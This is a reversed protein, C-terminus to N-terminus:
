HLWTVNSMEALRTADPHTHGSLTVHGFEFNASLRPRQPLRAPSPWAVTSSCQAALLLALVPPHHFLLTSPQLAGVDSTRLEVHLPSALPALPAFAPSCVHHGTHETLPTHPLLACTRECACACTRAHAHTQSRPGGHSRDAAWTASTPDVQATPALPPSGARFLPRM